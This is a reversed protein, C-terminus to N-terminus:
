EFTVSTANTFNSTQDPQDRFWTQFYWTDGPLVAGDHPPPLDGLDISASLAAAGSWAGDPPQFRLIQGVLCLDGSSGGPNPVFGPTLSALFLGHVTGDPLDIADLRLCNGAVDAEGSILLRAPKGSSNPQAPGCSQTGISEPIRTVLVKGLTEPHDLDAHPANLVVKDGSLAADEGFYTLETTSEPRIRTHFKWFSGTWRYVLAGGGIALFGSDMVFDACVLLDGEAEMRDGFRSNFSSQYDPELVQQESWSAGDFHFVHVTRSQDSTGVFVHDGLVEVGNGFVEFGSPTLIQELQWNNAARRYLHVDGPYFAAAVAIVDGDVAVDIGFENNTGPVEATLRKRKVWAAGDWEFVYTAGAQVLGDKGEGPAGVVIVDGDIDLAEGFRGEYKPSTSVLDQVADLGSPTWAFVKVLGDRAAAGYGDIASALIVDGEIAVEDGLGNVNLDGPPPYGTGHFQWQGNVLTFADVRGEGAGIRGVILRDGEIAVSAGFGSDDTWHPDVKVPECPCDQAAALTTLALLIPLRM